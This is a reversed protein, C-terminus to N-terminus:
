PRLFGPLANIIPSIKRERDGNALFNVQFDTQRNLASQRTVTVNGGSENLIFSITGATNTVASAYPTATATQTALVAAACAAVIALKSKARALRAALSLVVRNMTSIKKM